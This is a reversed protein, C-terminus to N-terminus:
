VASHQKIIETQELTMQVPKSTPRVEVPIATEKAYRVRLLLKGARTIKKDYEARRKTLETIVKNMTEESLDLRYGAKSSSSVVPILDDFMQAITLRIKRDYKNNNLDVTSPVLLGYVDFILQRRTRGNPYAKKLSQFIKVKLDSLESEWEAFITEYTSNM